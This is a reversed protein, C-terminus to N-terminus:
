QDPSLLEEEEEEEEEELSVLVSIADTQSCTLVSQLVPLPGPWHSFILIHYFLAPAIRYGSQSGPPAAPVLGLTM